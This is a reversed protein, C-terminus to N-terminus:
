EFQRDSQPVLGPHIDREDVQGAAHADSVPRILRRVIDPDDSLLHVLDVVADEARGAHRVYGDIGLHAAKHRTRVIQQDSLHQVDFVRM